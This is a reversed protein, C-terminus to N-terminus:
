NDDSEKRIRLSKCREIKQYVGKTTLGQIIVTFLITVYTAVLMTDFVNTDLIEEASLVLALSLGGKLASWTMLCTYEIKSYGGLVNGKSLCLPIGVGCFRSLLTSIITSLGILLLFYSVEIKLVMFGILVFLANNLIGDVLDWFQNYIGHEDTLSLYNENKGRYYAFIMGCLVSAICGSFGFRSCIVYSLSVALISLLIYNIPKHTYRFLRVLIMCVIFAVAIAGFIEKILVLVINTGINTVISKIFAFLVVGMGDNFLSESEIVTTLNKSLGLKSLIGTAAIPDTPAIISGLLICIWISLNLKFLLSFLFFLAGYVFTVIATSFFSLMTISRINKSFKNFKVKSAGAFLMFCLVGDLLYSEFKFNKLNKLSTDLWGISFYNNIIKLIIALIVTFILIAIENPINIFRENFISVLSVILIVFTFFTLFEM